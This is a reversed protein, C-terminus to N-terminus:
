NRVILLGVRAAPRWTSGHNHPDGGGTSGSSVTGVTNVVVAGAGFEVAIGNGFIDHTHAPIEDETLTHDPLQWTGSTTGGTTYTSGGKVALVTDGVSSITSWGANLLNTPISNAYVWIGVGGSFGVDLTPGLANELELFNNRISSASTRIKQSDAPKSSDYAM